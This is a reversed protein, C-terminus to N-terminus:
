GIILDKIWLVLVVLSKNMLLIPLSQFKFKINFGVTNYWIEEEEDLITILISINCLIYDVCGWHHIDTINDKLDTM